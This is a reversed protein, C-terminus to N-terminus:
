EEEVELDQAKMERIYAWAVEQIDCLLEDPDRVEFGSIRIDKIRHAKQLLAKVEAETNPTRDETALKRGIDFLAGRIKESADQVLERVKEIDNLVKM